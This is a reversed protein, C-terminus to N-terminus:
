WCRGAKTKSVGLGSSMTFDAWAWDLAKLGGAVAALQCDATWFLVISSITIGLECSQELKIGQYQVSHHQRYVLKFSNGLFYKEESTEKM